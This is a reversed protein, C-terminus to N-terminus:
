YAKKKTAKKTTKKGWTKKSKTAKVYALRNVGSGPM